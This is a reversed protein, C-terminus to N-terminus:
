TMNRQAVRRKAQRSLKRKTANWYKSRCRDDCYRRRRTGTVLPTRCSRCARKGRSVREFAAKFDLGTAAMDEFTAQEVAKSLSSGGVSTRQVRTATHADAPDKELKRVVRYTGSLPDWIEQTSWYGDGDWILPEEARLDTREASRKRRMSVRGLLRVKRLTTHTTGVLQYLEQLTQARESRIAQLAEQAVRTQEATLRPDGSRRPSTCEGISPVSHLRESAALGEALEKEVLSFISGHERIWHWRLAKGNDTRKSCQPCIRM